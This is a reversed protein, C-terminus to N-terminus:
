LKPFSFNANQIKRTVIKIAAVNYQSVANESAFYFIKNM